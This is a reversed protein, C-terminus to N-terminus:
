KKIEKEDKNKQKSKERQKLFVGKVVPNTRYQM